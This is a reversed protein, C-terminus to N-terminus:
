RRTPTRARRPRRPSASTRRALARTRSAAGTRHRDDDVMASTRGARRRRRLTRGPATSPYAAQASARPPATCSPRIPAPAPAVIPLHRPRSCARGPPSPPAVTRSPSRTTLASTATLATPSMSSPLSGPQGGGGGLAHEPPLRHARATSLVVSRRRRSSRAGRCPRIGREDGLTAVVAEGPGSAGECERPSPSAITAAAVPRPRPRRRGHGSGPPARRDLPGIRETTGAPCGQGPTERLGPRWHHSEARQGDLGRVHVRQGSDAPRVWTTNPM